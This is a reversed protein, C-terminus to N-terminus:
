YAASAQETAQEAYAIYQLQVQSLIFWKCNM